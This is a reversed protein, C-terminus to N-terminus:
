LLFHPINTPSFAPSMAPSYAPGLSPGGEAEDGPYPDGLNGEVIADIDAASTTEDAPLLIWHKGAANDMAWTVAGTGTTRTLTGRSALYTLADDGAYRLYSSAPAGWNPRTSSGHFIWATLLPNAADLETDLDAGTSIGDGAWIPVWFWDGTYADAGTLATDWSDNYAM